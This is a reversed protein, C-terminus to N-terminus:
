PNRKSGDVECLQRNVFETEASGPAVASAGTAITCLQALERASQALEELQDIQRGAKSPLQERLERIQNGADGFRALIQSLQLNDQDVVTLDDFTVIVGRRKGNPELIPSVNVNLRRADRVGIRLRIPVGRLQLDGSGENEWPYSPPPEDRDNALWSLSSLRRGVLQEASSFTTQAIAQNAMVIYGRNDLVIMGEVLTDMLLQMRNPIVSSPDLMTLMRSLYLWFLVFLAALVFIVLRVTPKPWWGNWGAHEIPDAFAIELEGWPASGASLTLHIHTLDSARAPAKSGHAQHGPTQAVIFGDARRLCASVVDDRGVLANLQDNVTTYDERSVAAAISRSIIEAVSVRARMLQEDDNPLLNIDEAFLLVCMALLVLGMVIRMPARVGIRELLHQPSVRTGLLGRLTM